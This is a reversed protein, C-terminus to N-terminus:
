YVLEFTEFINESIEHHLCTKSRQSLHSSVAVVCGKREVVDPGLVSSEFGKLNSLALLFTVRGDEDVPSVSKVWITSKKRVWTIALDIPVIIRGSFILEELRIEAEDAENEILLQSFNFFVNVTAPSEYLTKYIPIFIRSASITSALIGHLSTHSIRSFTIKIRFRDTFYVKTNEGDFLVTNGSRKVIDSQALEVTGVTFESGDVDFLRYPNTGYKSSDLVEIKNMVDRLVMRWNREKVCRPIELKITEELGISTGQKLLRAASIGFLFATRYREKELSKLYVRYYLLVAQYRRAKVISKAMKTITFFPLVDIAELIFRIGLDPNGRYSLLVDYAEEVFPKGVEKPTSLQLGEIRNMLEFERSLKQLEKRCQNVNIPNLLNYKTYFVYRDNLGEIYEMGHALTESVYIILKEKYKEWSIQGDSEWPIPKQNFFLVGDKYVSYVDIMNFSDNIFISKPTPFLEVRIYSGPLLSLKLTSLVNHDIRLEHHSINEALPFGHTKSHCVKISRKM